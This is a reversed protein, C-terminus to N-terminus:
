CTLYPSSPLRLLLSPSFPFLLYPPHPLLPLLYPTPPLLLLLYPSTSFSSTVAPLTLLIPYLLCPFLLITYPPLLLHPPLPLLLLFFPSTFPSFYHSTLRPSPLLRLLLAMALRCPSNIMRDSGPHSSTISMDINSLHYLYSPSPGPTLCFRSPPPPLPRPLPHLLPTSPILPLLLPKLLSSSSLLPSESGSSPSVPWKPTM